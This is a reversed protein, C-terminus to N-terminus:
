SVRPSLRANRRGTAYFDGTTRGSIALVVFREVVTLVLFRRVNPAVVSKAHDCQFCRQINVNTPDVTGAKRELATVRCLVNTVFGTVNCRAFTAHAIILRRAIGQEIRPFFRLGFRVRLRLLM